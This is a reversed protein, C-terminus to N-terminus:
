REGPRLPLPGDGAARRIRVRPAAFPPHAAKRAPQSHPTLPKGREDAMHAVFGDKRQADLMTLIVDRAAVPDWEAYGISQFGSDWLWFWNYHVKSPVCAWHEMSGQPSYLLNDLATASMRYLALYDEQGDSLHPPPLMSFFEEREKEMKDWGTDAYSLSFLEPEAMRRMSVPGESSYAFVLWFDKAEGPSLEAEEFDLSFVGKKMSSTAPENQTVALWNKGFTFIPSVSFGLNHPGYPEDGVLRMYRGEKELNFSLVITKVSEGKNAFTVDIIYTDLEHFFVRTTATMNGYDATETWGYYEFVIERSEPLAPKGEIELEFWSTGFLGTRSYDLINKGTACAYHHVGGSLMERVEAKVGVHSGYPSLPGGNDRFSTDFETVYSPAGSFDIAPSFSAAGAELAAFMVVLIVFLGTRLKM